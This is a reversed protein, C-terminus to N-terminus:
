RCFGQLIEGLGGYHGILFPSNGYRGTSRVYQRIRGLSARTSDSSNLATLNLVPLLLFRSDPEGDKSFSFALACSLQIALRDDLQFAETLFQSFPM